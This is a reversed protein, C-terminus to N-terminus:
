RSAQPRGALAQLDLTVPFPGTLTLPEGRRAHADLEYGGTGGLRYASSRLGDHLDVLLHHPIGAEAYLHFKLIRDVAANSPSTIEVTLAIDAAAYRSVEAGPTTTVVLDPIVIRGSRLVVQVGIMVEFGSPAHASLERWLHALLRQHSGGPGGSVLLAGDVLEVRADTEPLALYDDETWMGPHHGLDFTPEPYTVM